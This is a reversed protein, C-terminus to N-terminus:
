RAEAADGGDVRELYELIRHSDHVVDEGHVLVPVWRQGTLEEVEPRSRKLLPVRVESYDIGLARLRRAVKGCRCAYDTPAKCRYLVAM